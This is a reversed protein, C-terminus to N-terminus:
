RKQIKSNIIRIVKEPDQAPFVVYKAYKDNTTLKVRQHGISAFVQQWENDIKILPPFRFGNINWPLRFIYRGMNTEDKKCEVINGWEITKNFLINFGFFCVRTM